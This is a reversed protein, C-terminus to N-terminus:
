YAPSRCLTCIFRIYTLFQHEFNLHAHGHALFLMLSCEFLLSWAAYTEVHKIKATLYLLMKMLNYDTVLPIYLYVRIKSFHKSGPGSWCWLTLMAGPFHNVATTPASEPPYVSFGNGWLYVLIWLLTSHSAFELVVPSSAVIYYFTTKQYIQGNTKNNKCSIDLM